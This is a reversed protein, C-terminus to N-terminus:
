APLQESLWVLLSSLSSQMPLDGLEVGALCLAARRDQEMGYCQRMRTAYDHIATVSREM